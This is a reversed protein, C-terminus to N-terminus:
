LLSIIILHLLSLSITLQCDVSMFNWNYEPATNCMQLGSLSISSFTVYVISYFFFPDVGLPENRCIRAIKPLQTHCSTLEIGTLALSVAERFYGSCFHVPHTVWTISHRMQLYSARLEFGLEVLFIFFLIWLHM